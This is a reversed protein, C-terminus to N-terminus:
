RLSRASPIMRPRSDRWPNIYLLRHFPSAGAARHGPREGRLIWANKTILSAGCIVVEDQQHDDM